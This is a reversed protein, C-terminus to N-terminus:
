AGPGDSRDYCRLEANPDGAEDAAPLCQGSTGDELKCIQGASKGECTNVPGSCSHGTPTCAGAFVLAIWVINDKAFQLM